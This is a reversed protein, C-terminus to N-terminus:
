LPRVSDEIFKVMFETVDVKDSLLREKKSQWEEKLDNRQLLELAKKLAETQGTEPNLFNYVLGYRDEQEDLYGLRLTNVYIAPTGLIACESAVTAGEGICLTAYYLLDHLREPPVTIRFKEFEKPLPSESTILVRGYKELEAVLERKAQIDFGHHGIDHIAEWAVFRIIIYKDDKGLGLNDLVSPDPTFYKPHLYALESYGNYRVQKKGLDKTFCSPTCIADTFPFSIAHSLTAHETDSFCIHRIRLMKSVFGITPSGRSIFLDPKFHMALKLTPFVSRLYHFAKKVLNGKQDKGLIHYNFGNGNLLSLTVDKDISGIRVQHGKEQLKWIAFKFFHVHAPHNVCFVINM